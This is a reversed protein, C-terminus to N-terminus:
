VFNLSKGLVFIALLSIFLLFNTLTFYKMYGEGPSEKVYLRYSILNALSAIMTGLGGISVGQILSAYDGTFPATVVAAPVNSIFQSLIASMGLTSWSSQTLFGMATRIFDMQTLNHITMFFGAFTLLLFYDVKLIAKRNILVFAGAVASTTYAFDVLRFVSLIVLLFCMAYVLIRKKSIIRVDEVNFDIRDNDVTLSVLMAMMMGAATVPISARLFDALSLEYFNYIFINQPNGLPLLSSGLNACITSIVVIRFPNFSGKKGITMILPVVTILAVDNTILMAIVATTIGLTISLRRRSHNRKIVNIAVLDLFKEEELGIAVLMLCFLTALVRFDISEVLDWTPRVFIFTVSLVVLVISFVVEEFLRDFFSKLM